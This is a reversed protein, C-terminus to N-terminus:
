ESQMKKKLAAIFMPYKYSAIHAVDLDFINKQSCAKSYRAILEQKQEESMVFISDAWQIQEETVIDNYLGASRTECQDKFLAAATSARRNM